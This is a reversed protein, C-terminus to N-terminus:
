PLAGGLHLLFAIGVPVAFPIRVGTRRTRILVGAAPVAAAAFSYACCRLFEPFPFFAALVALFKIDGAGFFRFKWLPFFLLAAVAPYLLTQRAAEAPPAGVPHSLLIAAIWAAALWYNYVRGEKLDTLIAGSLLVAIVFFRDTL